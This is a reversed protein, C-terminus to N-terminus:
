WAQDTYTVRMVEEITTLGDLAKRIGDTKLSIMKEALAKLEIEDVSANKTVLARLAATVPLIEHIALRGRYGVYDCEDCGLGRYLTVPKDPSVGIFEREPADPGLVYARRCKPCILRVLRQATAALVSSAVLFPEIGMDVLRIIAGAANNTHITSLVMHGTMAARTAIEATESDRIEGVMIVDPDQRLIARLGAAFTMGSKTNVQTQNIGKLTYEVPDEVTIINREVKNIENLAAYLTTTKGSGTPGTILIMGHPRRLVSMFRKLNEPGLGIQNIKFSKMNGKDLLRAVIKEGYVTPMTSVRLDIERLGFKLQFRGDQPVRKEAIDMDSIIKVRSILALQIRQPITMIERLMGDIRYRVRAHDEQPEIHIDSANQEIAQFLISNVLRVVPAENVEAELAINEPEQRDAPM